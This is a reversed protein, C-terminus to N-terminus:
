NAKADSGPQEGWLERIRRAGLYRMAYWLKDLDSVIVQRAKIAAHLFKNDGIYIGVHTPSKGGSSFFVLDGAELKDRDVKEGQKFQERSTRPLEIHFKSFLSKVMGSCDFGSKESGGQRRYRVGIWRFGAEVLRVRMPKDDAPDLDEGRVAPSSIRPFAPAYLLVHLAEMSKSPEANAEAAQPVPIKLRQGIRITTSRLENAYMLSAPTIKFVRAIRTLTDGQHILYIHNSNLQPAQSQRDPRVPSNDANKSHGSIPIFLLAAATFLIATCYRGKM